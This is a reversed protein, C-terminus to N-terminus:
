FRGTVKGSTWTGEARSGSSMASRARPRSPAPIRVAEHGEIDPLGIDMIVLDILAIRVIQIGESANQAVVADVEEFLSLQEKLAECLEADDDIIVRSPRFNQDL